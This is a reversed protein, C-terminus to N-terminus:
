NSGVARSVFARIGANFADNQDGAVMHGAGEVDFIELHAVRHKFKAVAADSVVDSTLGRVLLVPLSELAELTAAAEQVARHHVEPEHSVIQPDWHWYLRGNERRRLNKMLGTPNPRRKREPTYDAVARAADDITAFGDQHAAMFNVIREIGASEPEPVIDVLALGVPRIGRAIACIATAGGLSAGVLIFPTEITELVAKLDDVRDPLQYAANPSWDSEGHGRADFSIVQFGENVLELFAGKWSHRTQGGGHLLVVCPSDPSGARDGVIKLGDSSRVSFRTGSAM